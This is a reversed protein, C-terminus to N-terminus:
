TNLIFIASVFQCVIGSSGKSLPILFIFRLSAKLANANTGNAADITPPTADM